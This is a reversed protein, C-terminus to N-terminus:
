VEVVEEDERESGGEVVRVWVFSVGGGLLWLGESEWFIFYGLGLFGLPM